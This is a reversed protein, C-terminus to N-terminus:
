SPPVLAAAEKKTGGLYLDQIEEAEREYGYRRLVDNYYNARPAWGASTSPWCRGLPTASTSSTTASRSPVAPSSTSRRCTPPEAALGPLSRARGLPRRGARALLAAAALGRGARRDDRREETRAGRRPDPDARAVTPRHDEPGQRSGHGRGRSRSTSLQRRRTRPSRAAVGTRCVDIIEARGPRAAPRVARRPLGRDGAPRLRRARARVPRRVAQRSRGRDDRAADAHPLLDAPHELRAAGARHDGRPLRADLRCRGHVGRGDLPLRCRGRRAAECAPRARRRRDGRLGVNAGLKMAVEIRITRGWSKRADRLVERFPKDGDVSPERPLGLLRESIINRQIQNSGGAIAMIRGNLFNIAAAREARRTTRNGPSAPDAPSTWARAPRPATARDGLGLKILSASAGDRRHREGDRDISESREAPEAHLRQHPRPRDTSPDRPRQGSGARRPWRSWTPRWSREANGGVGAVGGHRRDGGAGREVALMSTPSRGAATSRASSWRRRRRRRRRPVGRLVRQQRQDRPGPPGHRASDGLPVKFWTLGRHKPADWDTRALCIATTPSWRAPADVGQERQPGVVDGDRTARTLLGALDSGAAPESLLQVWIEEGSLMKPIWEAEAGRQRAAAADAAIIGIRSAQQRDRGAGAARLGSSEENWVRQHAQTLGQGGYESPSPSAPSLRRRLGQTQLARGAAVEDATIDHSRLSADPRRPELNAALWDRAEARYEDLDDASVVRAEIVIESRPRALACVRERHWTPEGYLVANSRIRRMFLHLDHEWTFGIGGHVQLCDQALENGQDGVYAAAM